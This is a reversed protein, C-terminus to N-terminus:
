LFGFISSYRMLKELEPIETLLSIIMVKDDVRIETNANPIIVDDGRHIAAIIIGDPLKLNKLPKNLLKM